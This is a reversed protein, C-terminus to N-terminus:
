RQTTLPEQGGASVLLGAVSVTYGVGATVAVGGECVIQEDPVVFMTRELVVPEAVNEQVMLMTGAPLMEPADAPLPLIILWVNTLM